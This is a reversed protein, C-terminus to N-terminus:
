RRRSSNTRTAPAALLRTAVRSSERNEGQWIKHVAGALLEIELRAIIIGAQADPRAARALRELRELEDGLERLVRRAARLLAAREAISLGRSDNNYNPM